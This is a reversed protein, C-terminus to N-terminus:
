LLLLITKFKPIDKPLGGWKIVGWLFIFNVFFLCVFLFVIQSCFVHVSCYLPPWKNPWEATERCKVKFVAVMNGGGCAFLWFFFSTFSLSLSLVNLQGHIFCAFFLAPHPTSSVFRDLKEALKKAVFARFEPTMGFNNEEENEIVARCCILKFTCGRGFSFSTRSEHM